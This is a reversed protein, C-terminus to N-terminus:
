SAALRVIQYSGLRPSTRSSMVPKGDVIEMWKYIINQPVAARGPSRISTIAPKKSRRCPATNKSTAIGANYAALALEVKQDYRNLLQKLYTV